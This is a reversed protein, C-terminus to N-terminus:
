TAHQPFPSSSYDFVTQLCGQKKKQARMRLSIDFRSDVLLDNDVRCSAAYSHRRITGMDHAAYPHKPSIRMWRCSMWINALSYVYPTITDLGVPWSSLFLMANMNSGLRTVKRCLLSIM